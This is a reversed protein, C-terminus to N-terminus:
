NYIPAAQFDGYWVVNASQIDRTGFLVPIERGDEATPAQIEELGAPRANQPKPRMSYSYILGIILIAAQIYAWM